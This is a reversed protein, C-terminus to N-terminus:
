RCSVSTKWLPALAGAQAEPSMTWVQGSQVAPAASGDYPQLVFPATDIPYGDLSAVSYAVNGGKLLEGGAKLWVPEGILMVTQAGYGRVVDVMRQSISVWKPSEVPPVNFPEYWVGPSKLLYTMALRLWDEAKEAVDNIKSNSSFDTDNDYAIIVLMGLANAQDIFPSLIAPVFTPTMENERVLIRVAKAGAAALEKLRQEPKRDSAAMDALTPLQAGHLIMAKGADDKVFRGDVQMTCFQAVAPTPTAEVVLPRSACGALALLLIMWAPLVLRSNAIWNM